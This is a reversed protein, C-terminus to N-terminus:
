QLAQLNEFQDMQNYIAYRHNRVVKLMADRNIPYNAFPGLEKALEASTALSAFHMIATIAGCIATAEKSDYPVGNRM